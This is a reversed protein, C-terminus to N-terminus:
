PEILVVNGPPSVSMIGNNEVLYTRLTLYSGAAIASKDKRETIKYSTGNIEIVSGAVYSQDSFLVAIQETIKKNYAKGSLDYDAESLFATREADSMNDFDIEKELNAPDADIFVLFGGFRANSTNSSRFLLLYDNVSNHSYLLLQIDFPPNAHEYDLNEEKVCSILFIQCAIIVALFFEKM